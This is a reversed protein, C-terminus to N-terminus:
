LPGMALRADRERGVRDDTPEDRLHSRLREGDIGLLVLVRDGLEALLQGFLIPDEEDEPDIALEFPDLDRADEQISRLVAVHAGFIELALRRAQSLSELEDLLVDERRRALSTQERWGTLISSGGFAHGVARLAARLSSGGFA